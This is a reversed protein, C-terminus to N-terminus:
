WKGSLLLLMILLVYLDTNSLLFICLLVVTYLIGAAKLDPLLAILISQGFECPCGDERLTRRETIVGNKNQPM